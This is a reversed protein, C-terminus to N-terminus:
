RGAEAGAGQPVAPVIRGIDAGVAEVVPVLDEGAVQGAVPAGEARQADGGEARPLVPDVPLQAVADVAAALLQRDVPLAELPGAEAGVVQVVAVLHDLEGVVAGVPGGGGGALREEAAA